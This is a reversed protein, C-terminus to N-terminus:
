DDSQIGLAKEQEAKMEAERRAKRKADRAAADAQVKEMIKDFGPITRELKQYVRSSLNDFINYLRQVRFFGCLNLPLAQM